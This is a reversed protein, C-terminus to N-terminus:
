VPAYFLTSDRCTCTLPSTRAVQAFADPLSHLPGLSNPSYTVWGPPGDLPPRPAPISISSPLYAELELKGEQFMSCFFDRLVTTFLIWLTLTKIKDQPVWGDIRPEKSFPCTNQSPQYLGPIQSRIELCTEWSTWVRTKHSKATMERPKNKNPLIFLM